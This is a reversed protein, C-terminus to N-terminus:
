QFIQVENSNVIIKRRGKVYRVVSIPIKIDKLPAKTKINYSFVREEKKNVVPIEWILENGRDTKIIKDPKLSGFENPIEALSTVRDMVKVNKFKFRSKNKLTLLIKLNNIGEGEHKVKIIKKYLKLDKKLYYYLLYIVAIIVLLVLLPTRYNTIIEIESSQNPEIELNWRYEYYGDKEEIFNPKPKTNTFLKEFWSFSYFVSEYVVSNGENEKLFNIKNILFGETETEGGKLNSYTGVNMIGELESIDEENYIISAILEYEGEITNEPIEVVFDETKTEYSALNVKKNEEFFESKLQISLDNIQMEHKNILKLRITASKRPDIEPIKPDFDLEVLNPYDVYAVVLTVLDKQDGYKVNIPIGYSGTNKRGIPYIIVDVKQMGGKSLTFFSPEFDVRWDIDFYVLEFETLEYENLINLRFEAQDTPNLTNKIATSTIDVDGADVSPVLIVLFLFILSKKM